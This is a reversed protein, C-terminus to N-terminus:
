RLRGAELESARPDDYPPLEDDIQQQTQTFAASGEAYLYRILRTREKLFFTADM